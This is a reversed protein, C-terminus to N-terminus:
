DTGQAGFFRVGSLGTGGSLVVRGSVTYRRETVTFDYNSVGARVQLSDSFKYGTKSAFVFVGPCVGPIAYAGLQDTVASNTDAIVTVGSLGTTGDLVHGSITLPACVSLTAASSVVIGLRNSVSVTYSGANTPQANTLTYVSNTAGAITAGNFQWRYALPALGTASVAFRANGGALVTQDSPSSIIEPALRTPYEYAGIDSHLGVPRTTGREDVDPAALDDAADIALSDTRLAM